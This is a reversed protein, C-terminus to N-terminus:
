PQYARIFLAVVERIHAEIAAPTLQEACGLLQRMNQNGKIMCFFHDAANCPNAIHLQGSNNAHSLLQEMEHLIRQPGAQFFLESLKSNSSAQAVMLRHLEISEDSNVLSYFGRGINLLVEEISASPMPSFYLQPLQEESKAKVAATFLTEKDTFHSYVTLKSVGAEAAIADMSSGEYGNRLFLLKAAELIADRKAPDKPRGPSSPQFPKNSM